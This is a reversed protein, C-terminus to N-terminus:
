PANVRMATLANEMQDLRRQAKRMSEMLTSSDEGRQMREDLRAIASRAKQIEDVLEAREVQRRKAEKAAAAEQGAALAGKTLAEAYPERPIRVITDAPIVQPKSSSNRERM